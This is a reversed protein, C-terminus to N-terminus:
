FQRKSSRRLKKTDRDTWKPRNQFSNKRWKPCNKFSNESAQGSGKTTERMVSALQPMRGGMSCRCCRWFPAHDHRRPHRDSTNYRGRSPATRPMSALVRQRGQSQPCSAERGQAAQRPLPPQMRVRFGPGVEEDSSPSSAKTALAHQRARSPM